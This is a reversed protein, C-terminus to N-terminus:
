LQEENRAVELRLRTTDHAPRSPNTPLRHLTIMENNSEDNGLRESRQFRLNHEYVTTIISAVLEVAALLVIELM